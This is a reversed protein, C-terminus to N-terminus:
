KGPTTVRNHRVTLVLQNYADLLASLAARGPESDEYAHLAEDPNSFLDKWDADPIIDASHGSAAMFGKESAPTLALLATADHHEQKGNTSLIRRLGTQGFSIEPTLIFHGSSAKTGTSVGSLRFCGSHEVMAQLASEPSPLHRAQLAEMWPSNDAIKIDLTGFAADCHALKPRIPTPQPPQSVSTPPTHPNSQPAPQAQPEVSAPNESPIGPEIACGSILLIALTSCSLVAVRNM